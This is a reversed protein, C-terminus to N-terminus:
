TTYAPVTGIRPSIMRQYGASSRPWGALWVREAPPGAQM